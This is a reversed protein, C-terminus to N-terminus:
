SAPSAAWGHDRWPSAWSRSCTLHARPRLTLDHMGSRASSFSSHLCLVAAAQVTQLLQQARSVAALVEWSVREQM